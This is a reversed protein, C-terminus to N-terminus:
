FINKEVALLIHSSESTQNKSSSSSIVTCVRASVGVQKEFQSFPLSVTPDFPFLFMPPPPPVCRPLSKRCIKSSQQQAKSIFKSETNFHFSRKHLMKSGKKKPLNWAQLVHLLLPMFSFVPKQAGGGGGRSGGICAAQKCM